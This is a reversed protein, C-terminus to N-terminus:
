REERSIWKPVLLPEYAAFRDLLPAAQAEVLLTDLHEPRLFREEAMHRIFALLGDFFGGINLLGVPKRHYGLQGWTWVEFFEEMTGMGGPLALFADSRDAMLAKREHMSEVVLLESLKDHALEKDVLARPIVGTVRGGAALCADAVAGMLGIRAGGYVLALGREALLRGLETAAAEYVPLRGYNSGTFVCVARLTRGQGADDRAM